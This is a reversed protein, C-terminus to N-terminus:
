KKKIEKIILLGYIISITAQSILLSYGIGILQLSRFVYSWGFVSCAYIVGMIILISTRNKLNMLNGGLISICYFLTSFSLIQLFAFGETAYDKGFISLAFRGFISICIIVPILIGIMLISARKIFQHINKENHSSEAYLSQGISIPIINILNIIMMDIYFFAAQRPSIYNAILLPLGQSPLMSFLSALYNHFTFKKMLSLQTRDIILQPKYNITRSLIIIGLIVGIVLSAMFSIFIGFAALYILLLPLSVKVISIVVNKWLVYKAKKFSIFISELLTNIPFFVSIIIFTIAFLYNNSIFNLTPFLWPIILVFLTSIILTLMSSTNLLSNILLNPNKSKPLFRIFSNNFGLLSLQSIITIASIIATAIGIDETNFIRANIFWFGFGFLSMVGTSLILYVSNRFLSDTQFHQYIQKFYKM